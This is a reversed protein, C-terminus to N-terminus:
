LSVGLYGVKAVDVGFKNTINIISKIKSNTISTLNWINMGLYWDTMIEIM